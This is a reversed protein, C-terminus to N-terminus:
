RVNIAAAAGVFIALVGYGQYGAIFLLASGVLCTGVTVM